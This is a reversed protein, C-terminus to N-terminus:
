PTRSATPTRTPVPTRSPTPTNSPTRTRSPTPTVTPTRTFTPTNTPTLLVTERMLSGDAAYFYFRPVGGSEAHLAFFSGDPAFDGDRISDWGDNLAERVITGDSKVLWLTTTVGDFVSAAFTGTGPAYDLLEIGIQNAILATPEGIAPLVYLTLTGNPQRSVYTLLGADFKATPSPTFTQTPTFTETPTLTQSPTLTATPPVPTGTPTATDTPTHTATPSSIALSLSNDPIFGCTNRLFTPCIALSILMGGICALAAVIGLVAFLVTRDPPLLEGKATAQLSGSTATVNFASPKGRVELSASKQDGAALKLTQPRFAFQLEENPDFGSLLVTAEGAEQGARSVTVTFDRTSRRPSLKVILPRPTTDLRSVPAPTRLWAAPPTSEVAGIIARVEGLRIDESRDLLYPKNPPIREGDLITGHKSGLDEIIIQGRKIAFRAHHSNVSEHDLIIDNDIARGVSILSTDITHSLITGDPLRLHIIGYNM